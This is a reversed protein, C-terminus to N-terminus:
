EDVVVRDLLDVVSELWERLRASEDDDFPAFPPAVENAVLGRVHLAAKMAAVGPRIRHLAALRDVSRQDDGARDLDGGTVARFLDTCLGPALNALGPTIGDAGQQLAWVLAGEAGQSVQFGPRRERLAVAAPILADTGGSDKIGVVGPLDALRELLAPTVPNGSYRAINYVVVPTGAESVARFHGTLEADTHHFYLPPAAVVATPSASQLAEAARVTMRTGTGFATVLLRAGGGRRRRWEAAVDVAFAAAEHEPVLAGEGNSGLLMLVDVGAADFTDILKLAGGADPIGGPKMPTVMPVTVGSLLTTEGM